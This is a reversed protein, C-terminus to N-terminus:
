GGIKIELRIEEETDIISYIILLINDKLSFEKTETKLYLEKEVNSLKIKTDTKNKLNLNIIIKYDINEKIIQKNKIDITMKSRLKNNEYYTIINNDRDYEGLVKYEEKINNTTLSIFLKEKKM